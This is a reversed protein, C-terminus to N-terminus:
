KNNVVPTEEEKVLGIQRALREIYSDTKSLKYEEKLKDNDNKVTTLTKNKESIERNLRSISIGTSILVYGFYVAFCIIIINRLHFRKKM